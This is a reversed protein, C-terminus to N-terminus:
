AEFIPFARVFDVLSLGHVSRVAGSIQPFCKSRKEM